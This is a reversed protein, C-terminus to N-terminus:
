QLREKLKKNTIERESAKMRRLKTKSFKTRRDRAYRQLDGPIKFDKCVKQGTAIAIIESFDTPLHEQIEEM